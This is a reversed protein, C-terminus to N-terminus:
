TRGDALADRVARATDMGCRLTRQIRTASPNAPLEGDEILLRARDALAAIDAGGVGINARYTPGTPAGTPLGHDLTTFGALIIPLAMVLTVAIIPGILHIALAAISFAEGAPLSWPLYPWANMGLSLGLFLREIRVLTPHTLPRGQIALYARAGVIVLLALSVFPEVFWAFVWGPSWPPAGDAAFKQVGATSWGLALTLCVMAATVLLRRMRAAQLARMAPDSDLAHLRAAEQAAKRRKRVKPTEVTLPADDDQLAALAHAEAVEARLRQVRRTEGAPLAPKAPAPRPTSPAQETLHREIEALGRAVDDPTPEPTPTTISM